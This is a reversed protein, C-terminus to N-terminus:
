TDPTPNENSLREDVESQSPLQAPQSHLFMSSSTRFRRKQHALYYPARSLGWEFPTMAGLHDMLLKNFPDLGQLPCPSPFEEQKRLHLGPGAMARQSHM